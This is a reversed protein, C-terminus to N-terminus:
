DKWDTLAEFFTRRYPERGALLERSVIGLIDDRGAFDAAWRLGETRDIRYISGLADARFYDKETGDDLVTRLAPLSEGIEMNGLFGIAYRRRDMNKDRIEEIVRARVASSHLILPDMLQSEARGASGDHFDAMVEDATPRWIVYHYLVSGAAANWPYPAVFLALVFLGVAVVCAILFGKFLKRWNLKM